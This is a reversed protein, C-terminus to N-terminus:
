SYEEAENETYLLEKSDILRELDILYLIGRDGFGTAMVGRNMLHTQITPPHAALEILEMQKVAANSAILFAIHDVDPHITEGEDNRAEATSEFESIFDNRLFEATKESFLGLESIVALQATGVRAVRFTDSLYLDLDFLIYNKGDVEIFAKVYRYSSSVNHLGSAFISSSSQARNILFDTEEYKARIVKVTPGDSESM